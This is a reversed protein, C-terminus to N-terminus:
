LTSKNFGKTCILSVWIFIIPAYIPSRRNRSLEYIKQGDLIVILMCTELSFFDNKKFLSARGLCASFLFLNEPLLLLRDPQALILLFVMTKYLPVFIM